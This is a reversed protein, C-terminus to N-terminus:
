NSSDKSVYNFNYVERRFKTASMNLLSSAMSSTILNEAVGKLVIQELRSSKEKGSYDGLEKDILGKFKLDNLFDTTVQKKIVGVEEARVIMSQPSIGYQSKIIILEKLLINTRRMGLEHKVVDHPILMAAAFRNCIKEKERTSLGEPFKLVLHGLEHAATFRKRDKESKENIVVVAHDGDIPSSLGAFNKDEFDFLLVKIGKEELLEVLSPIPGFGLEWDQRLQEACAEAGEISECTYKQLDEFTMSDGVLHEAQLYREIYDKTREVIERQKTVSVSDMKRFSPNINVSSERDFFDLKVDLAQALAVLNKKRPKADGNEYKGIAQKSIKGDLLDSLSQMSHGRMTRAVRLREPFTRM